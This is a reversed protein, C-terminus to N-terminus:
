PSRQQPCPLGDACDLLQSKMRANRLTADDQHFKEKVIEQRIDNGSSSIQSMVANLPESREKKLTLTLEVQEKLQRRKDDIELKRNSPLHPNQSSATLIDLSTNLDKTFISLALADALKKCYLDQRRDPMLSLAELVERSIQFEQSGKGLSKIEADSIIREVPQGPQNKIKGLVESCLKTHMSKELGLLYNNPSLNVNKPGYDVKVQGNTIVTDGVMSKLLDLSTKASEGHFGAWAASSDILKNTNSQGSDKWSALDAQYVNQCSGMASELNGGNEKIQRRVCTQREKYYDETRSDTYKDILACQNLRMQSMFNANLQSHKLIACWTPSFYCAALMPSSGVINQGLDGFYESNLINKLSARLTNKFDVRGCDSGIGLDVGMDLTATTSDFLEDQKLSRSEYLYDQPSIKSSKQYRLYDEASLFKPFLLFLYLFM